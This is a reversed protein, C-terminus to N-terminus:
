KVYPTNQSGALRCPRSEAVGEDVFVSWRQDELDALSSPTSWSDERQAETTERCRALGEQSKSPAQNDRMYWYQHQREQPTNCMLMTSLRRSMIRTVLPWIGVLCAAIILLAGELVTLIGLEVSYWTPDNMAAKIQVLYVAMRLISAVTGLGGLLFVVTLAIKQGRPIHLRWVLPMPMVLILVGTVVNVPSVYRYIDTHEVCSGGSITKDWNYPIPRCQFITEFLVAVGLAVVVSGVIYAFIQFKRVPFIRVYFLILAMKAPTVGFPYDLIQIAFIGKRITELKEPMQAMYDIHYGLGASKALMIYIASRALSGMLALLLLYDDLGYRMRQVHRTYFRLAVLIIQVAALTAVAALLGNGSYPQDDRHAWGTGMM